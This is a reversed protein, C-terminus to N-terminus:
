RSGGTRIRIMEAQRTNIVAQAGANAAKVVVNAIAVAIGVKGGKAAMLITTGIETISQLQAQQIYDGTLTGFMSITNQLAIKGVQLAIVKSINENAKQATKEAPTGQNNYGTNEVDESNVKLENQIKIRYEQAM